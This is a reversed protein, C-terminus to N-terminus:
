TLKRENMVEEGKQVIEPRPEVDKIRCSQLYRKYREVMASWTIDSAGLKPESEEIFQVLLRTTREFDTAMKNKKMWPMLEQGYVWSISDVWAGTELGALLRIEVSLKKDPKEFGTARTEPKLKTAVQNLFRDIQADNRLLFDPTAQWGRDNDGHAFPWEGLRELAEMIEDLSFTKMRTKLKATMGGGVRHKKGFIENFRTIFITYCEKPQLVPEKQTSSSSIKPNEPSSIEVGLPTISEERLTDTILSPQLSDKDGNQSVSCLPKSDPKNNPKNNPIPKDNQVVANTVDSLVMQSKALIANEGISYWKTRDYKHQNYNGSVIYNKEELKLLCRRIQNTSLYNFLIEFSKISNYTWYRNNHFHTEDKNNAANRSIWHSINHFIIASDTGVDRAVDPDFYRNITTTLKKEM